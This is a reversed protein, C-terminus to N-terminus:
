LTFRHVRLKAPERQPRNEQDGTNEERVPDAGCVPCPHEDTHVGCKNGEKM